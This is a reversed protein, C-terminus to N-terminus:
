QVPPLNLLKRAMGEFLVWYAQLRLFLCCSVVEPVCCTLKSEYSVNNIDIKKINVLSTSIDLCVCCNNLIDTM